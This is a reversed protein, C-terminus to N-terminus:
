KKRYKGFWALINDVKAILNSPRSTMGHSAEPIRVMVTDVKRLKLAQYYQESEGIPTRFDAEGTLLMTPTKVNGVLSLPSRRWYEEPKEWPQAGFWYRYFFNNADSTLVFSAWNIVPKAVVAARFRDTKGVIWATLVGGGSGGTVFLNETDVNGQAILADVGSMLDDYDDGPYAHHILNGFAEGYSTSGRPNAYLVIYGAAAFLQLETTYNPGYATFPGGHIELVLPYKKAADFDPPTIVWGQIERQDKSSKWTIERVAGLTKSGLLDDNLTTLVRLSGGAATAVDAPRAPTNHPFAVRGNRALSYSGSTYPRGLDTGGIGEAINRMRGDLSVAGLKRVGREDYAFYVSRSDASWRPDAVDLDSGAAVPRSNKGDIDMVYLHTVQYGQVRDDFGLYAIKRGDPSVVPSNDPGDRTTLQTLKRTAIDVAFVDSEQPDREWEAGRNASFVLRRSDPTFSLPGEHNFDGETLQHPTGGEASVIFLHQYGTELYGAGDARYVVTDIVKVPPAWQAGEPKEPPTALPPKKAPVLQTFAISKGDASWAIAAPAEVVNTLLATQGTDIWRVYLQPSGEAASVYAIRTGDPSWRPSSFNKSESRLPRNNTGDANVMWLNRRARDTMIDHSIRVYVIRSGDPSIQVDDTYELQFVDISQLRQAAPLEAAGASSVLVAACAAAFRVTM